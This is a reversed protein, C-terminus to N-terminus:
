PNQQQWRDLLAKIDNYRDERILRYPALILAANAEIWDAEAQAAAEYPQAAAQLLHTWDEVARIGQYAADSVECLANFGSENERLYWYLDRTNRTIATRNVRDKPYSDTIVNSDVVRFQRLDQILEQLQAQWKQPTTTYRLFRERVDEAQRTQRAREKEPRFFSRLGNRVPTPESFYPRLEPIRLVSEEDIWGVNKAVSAGCIEAGAWHSLLLALISFTKLSFLRM